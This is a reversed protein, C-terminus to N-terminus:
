GALGPPPEERDAVIRGIEAVGAPHAMMDALVLGILRGLVLMRTLELELEAETPRPPRAVSKPRGSM